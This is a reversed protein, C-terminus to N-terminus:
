AIANAPYVSHRVFVFRAVVPGDVNSSYMGLVECKYRGVDVIPGKM